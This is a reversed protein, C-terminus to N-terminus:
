GQIEEEILLTPDQNTYGGDVSITQGNMFSSDDSLLFKVVKAIDLPQANRQLPNITAVKKLYDKGNLLAMPTEVWGPALANVRVKKEKMFLSLSMALSNVGSKSVAYSATISGGFFADTSGTMIFRGDESLNDYLIKALLFNGTLNVAITENWIDFDEELSKGEFRVIGSCNVIAYLSEGESKLALVSEKSKLDVQFERFNPNSKLNRINDPRQFFTGYVQYGEALLVESVKNGIGGSAGIVLVTRMHVSQIMQKFGYLRKDM